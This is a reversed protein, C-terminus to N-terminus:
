HMYDSSIHPLKSQPLHCENGEGIYITSSGETNQHRLYAEIDGAISITSKDMIGSSKLQLYTYKRGFTPSGGTTKSIKHVAGRIIKAYRVQLSLLSERGVTGILDVFRLVSVQQTSEFLCQPPRDLVTSNADVVSRIVFNPICYGEEELDNLDWKTNYWDFVNLTLKSFRTPIVGRGGDLVYVRESLDDLNVFIEMSQCSKWEHSITVLEHMM